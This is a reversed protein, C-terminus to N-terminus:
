HVNITRLLMRGLPTVDLGTAKLMGTKEDFEPVQKKITQRFRPRILGLNRLHTKRSEYLTADDREDQNSGSHAVRPQIVHWHRKEFEEDRRPLQELWALLIVECDDLQGLLWMLHKEEAIKAEPESIGARLIDAIYGIRDETMARSAQHFGDELLDIGEPTKLREAVVQQDLDTVKQGLQKVLRAIRDLRQEPIIKGVVEALLPGVGPIAGLTGRAFAVIADSRNTDVNAHTLEKESDSCV